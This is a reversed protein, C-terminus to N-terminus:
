EDGECNGKCIRKAERRAIVGILIRDLKRREDKTFLDDEFEEQNEFESALRKRQIQEQELLEGQSDFQVSKAHEFFEVYQVSDISEAIAIYMEIEELSFGYDSEGEIIKKKWKLFDQLNENGVPAILFEKNSVSSNLIMEILKRIWEKHGNTVLQIVQKISKRSTFRNLSISSLKEFTPSAVFDKCEKASRRLEEQRNCYM